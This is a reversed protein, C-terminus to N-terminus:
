MHSEQPGISFIPRRRHVVEVRFGFGITTTAAKRQSTTTAPFLFWFSLDISSLLSIKALDIVSVAVPDCPGTVTLNPMTRSCARLGVACIGHSAYIYM